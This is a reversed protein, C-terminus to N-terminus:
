GPGSRGPGGGRCGNTNCGDAWLQCRSRFPGARRRKRAYERLAGPSASSSGTARRVYRPLMDPRRSCLPCSGGRQNQPERMRTCCDLRPTWRYRFPTWGRRFAMAGRRSIRRKGRGFITFLRVGSPRLNSRWRRRNKQQFSARRSGSTRSRRGRSSWMSASRGNGHWRM